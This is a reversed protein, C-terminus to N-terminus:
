KGVDDLLDRVQESLDELIRIHEDAEAYEHEKLAKVDSRPLESIRRALIQALLYINAQSLTVKEPDQQREQHRRAEYDQIAKEISRPGGDLFIKRAQPDGLVQPLKRTDALRFIKGDKIWEGFDELELDAEFIADKIGPKQLEVFGSFRDIKFAADDVKDRYYDNMDHYADIQREIEVKKGGCLAIMEDYDMLKENRLYHLYRAKEYAPWARAGVLHAGVRIEEIERPSISKHVIAQIRSWREDQTEKHLKKYIALRTNGDICVNKGDKRAVVIPAVIGGQARISGELSAYSSTGNAKDETASRLAFHIREANIHDKYKELAKKIRPNNTDFSITDIDLETYDADMNKDRQHPQRSREKSFQEM